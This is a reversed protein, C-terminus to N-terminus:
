GEQAVAQREHRKTDGPRDVDIHRDPRAMTTLLREGFVMAESHDHSFDRLDM